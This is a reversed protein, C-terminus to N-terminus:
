YSGEMSAAVKEVVDKKKSTAIKKNLESLYLDEDLPLEVTKDLWSSLHMANSISLGKIGEEGPIYLEEKGLVANTFNQVLKLHIDKPEEVDVIEIDMGPNLWMSDSEKLFKSASSKSKYLKLVGDEAVIKGLDGQIETRNAVPYTGTSTRFVGTAGNAYEVYATVDDEVEIDHWKGEHAFARVKTPVMDLWWQWLDLNHPCQNILVGGGEGSWTARWSGSDYYTQTRFWDTVIINVSNIEGIIGSSILEKIKQNCPTFRNQFSIGFLKGSKEAAENMLRVQKTYVGAPKESLVHLGHEFALIAIEPHAYHPTAIIIADVLGSKMLEENSSFYTVGDGAKSKADALREPNIDSIATLQANELKNQIDFHANGINGFGIIGYRVKEM